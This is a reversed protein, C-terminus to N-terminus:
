ETKKREERKRAFLMQSLKEFPVEIVLHLCAAILIILFLDGCTDKIMTSFNMHKPTRLHGAFIILTIFHSVFISYSLRSLLKLIKSSLISNIIGGYGYYCVFILWAMALAWISKHITGFLIHNGANYTKENTIIDYSGMIPYLFAFLALCWGSILQIKSMTISKHCYMFYGTLIGILYPVIRIHTHDYYMTIHMNLIEENRQFTIPLGPLNLIWLTLAQIGTVVAILICLFAIGLKPSYRLPIILLPSILFLQIDMSTYWTQLVCRNANDKDYNNMHFIPQWWNIKCALSNSDVQKKWYPGTSLRHLVTIYIGVVALLVPTLRLYRQLFKKVHNVRRKELSLMLSYCRVLGAIILFTDVALCFNWIPLIAYIKHTNFYSIKNTYPLNSSVLGQHGLAVWLASLSRMGDICGITDKESNAFNTLKNWSRSLSFARFIDFLLGEKQHTVNDILTGIPVLLIILGLLTLIIYDGRTFKERPENNYCDEPTVEVFTGTGPLIRAAAVNLIDQVDRHSCSAPVCIAWEFRSAKPAPFIGRVLEEIETDIRDYTSQRLLEFWKPYKERILGKNLRINAMCYQPKIEMPAVVSLCEDFDGLTRINGMLIGHPFKASADMMRIAWETVNKIEQLYVAADRQCAPSLNELLSHSAEWVQTFWNPSIIDIRTPDENVNPAEVSTNLLFTDHYSPYGLNWTENLVNLTSNVRERIGRNLKTNDPVTSFKACETQCKSSTASVIFIHNLVLLYLGLFFHM